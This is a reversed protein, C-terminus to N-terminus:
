PSYRCPTGLPPLDPTYSDEAASVYAAIKAMEAVIKHKATKSIQMDELNNMMNLGM